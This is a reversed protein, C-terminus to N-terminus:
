TRIDSQQITVQLVVSATVQLVNWIESDRTFSRIQDGSTNDFLWMRFSLRILLDTM